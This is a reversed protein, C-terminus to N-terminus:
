ACNVVIPVTENESPIISHVTISTSGYGHGPAVSVTVAQASGTGMIYGLSPYRPNTFGAFYVWSVPVDAYWQNGPTAWVTFHDNGLSCANGSTISYFLPSAPSVFMQHKITTNDITTNSVGGGDTYHVTIQGTYDDPTANWTVTIQNTGSGATIIGGTITWVYASKGSETTYTVGTQGPYSFGQQPYWQFFNETISPTSPPQIGYRQQVSVNQSTGGLVNAINLNGTRSSMSSLNSALHIYVSGDYPHAMNGASPCSEISMFGGPNNYLDVSWPVNTIVNYGVSCEAASVDVYALPTVALRSAFLSKVVSNRIWGNKNLLHIM